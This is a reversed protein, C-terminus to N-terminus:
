ASKIKVKLEGQDFDLIDSLEKKLRDEQIQKEELYQRLEKSADEKIYKEFNEGLEFKVVPDTTPYYDEYEIIKNKRLLIMHQEVDSGDFASYGTGFKFDKTIVKETLIKYTALPNLQM